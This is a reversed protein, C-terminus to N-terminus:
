SRSHLIRQRVLDVLRKRHSHHQEQTSQALVIVQELRINHLSLSHAVHIYLVFACPFKVLM